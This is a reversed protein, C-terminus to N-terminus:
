KQFIAPCKAVTTESLLLLKYLAYSFVLLFLLDFPICFDFCKKKEESVMNLGRHVKPLSKNTQKKTKKKLNSFNRNEYSSLKLQGLLLEFLTTAYQVLTEQIKYTLINIRLVGKWLQGQQQTDQYVVQLRLPFTFVTFFDGRTIALITNKKYLISVFISNQQIIKWKM